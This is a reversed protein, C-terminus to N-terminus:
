ALVQQRHSNAAMKSLQHNGSCTIIIAVQEVTAGELFSEPLEPRIAQQGIGLHNEDIVIRRFEVTNTEPEMVLIFYGALQGASNEISLYNTNVDAHNDRHDKLSPIDVYNKAHAQRAMAGIAALECSGTRRLFIM